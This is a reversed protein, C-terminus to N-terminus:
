SRARSPRIRMAQHTRSQWMGARVLRMLRHRGRVDAQQFARQWRQASQRAAVARIDAIARAREEALFARYAETFAVYRSTISMELAARWVGDDIRRQMVYGADGWAPDVLAYGIVRMPLHRHSNAM